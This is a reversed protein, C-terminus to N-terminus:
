SAPHVDAAEQIADTMWLALAQLLAATCRGDVTMETDGAFYNVYVDYDNRPNDHYAQLSNLSGDPQVWHGLITRADDITM